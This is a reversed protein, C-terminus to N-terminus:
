CSCDTFFPCREHICQANKSSYTCKIKDHELTMGYNAKIYDVAETLVIFAGRKCCRPGGTEALKGLMHSTFKMHDGWSSDTTLPGTGDIISLAAGISNVAGCVGWKGCTAGPMQKGRAAMENLSKELDINGGANYFATLLSAGDLIHHEPGHMNIHEGEAIRNFIEIPNKSDSALCENVIYKIKEDFMYFVERSGIDTFSSLNDWILKESNSLTGGFDDTFDKYHKAGLKIYLNRANDNGKVICISMRDYGNESAMGAIEATLKSGVGKGRAQKSVHLSELYICGSIEDDPRSAAFGVFVEDDYAALVNQDPVTIYKGWKAKMKEATLGDLFSQSLIGAYTTRWNTLYLEAIKEIDNIKAPRIILM